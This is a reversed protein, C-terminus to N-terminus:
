RLDSFEFSIRMRRLGFLSRSERKDKGSVREVSGCSVSDWKLEYNALLILLQKTQKSAEGIM